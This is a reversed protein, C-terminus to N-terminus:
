WWWNMKVSTKFLMMLVSVIMMVESDHEGERDLQLFPSNLYWDWEKGWVGVTYENWGIRNVISIYHSTVLLLLFFAHMTQVMFIINTLKGRSLQGNWIRTLIVSFLVICSKVCIEMQPGMFPFEFTSVILKM